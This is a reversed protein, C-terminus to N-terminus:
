NKNVNWMNVHGDDSASLLLTEDNNNKIWKICNIEFFTHSKENKEICNWKGKLTEDEKYIAIVGDSGASAILGDDNWCVSYVPGSHVPPLTSECIWIDESDENVGDFKWVKVKADDSGSCLRMSDNKEVSSHEFDSCWVTGEHGNLVAACEWDEDFEKWVRITDDYSSSALVNQTPHWVVHKIDQSHEQLVSVCEYEEGVEDAEWIWVSKDRSCTALFYGDQSWAVSKVENEHGEIIALLDMSFNNGAVEDEQYDEKSWISITSDFSGAALINSNPRWAVSRITKKHASDDLEDLLRNDDDDNEKNKEDIDDSGIDGIRLIKIRLDSSATALLGSSYDISWIKDNHLKFSRLLKM